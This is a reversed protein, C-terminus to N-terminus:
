NQSNTSAPTINPTVATPSSTTTTSVNIKRPRAKAHIKLTLTLMGHEVNAAITEADIEDPLAISRTFRRRESEGSVTVVRDEVTVDIQEPKYGPVPIEVTYGDTSRHVDLTGVTAANAFFNRIPDMGLVDGALPRNTTRNTLYAM